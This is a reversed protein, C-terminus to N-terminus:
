RLFSGGYSMSSVTPTQQWNIGSGGSGGGSFLGAGKLGGLLGIGSSIAGFIGNQRAASAQAQAIGKAQIWQQKANVAGFGLSAFQGQQQSVRDLGGEWQQMSQAEAQDGFAQEEKANTSSPPTFSGKMQGAFDGYTGDGGLYKAFTGRKAAAGGTFRSSQQDYQTPDFGAM